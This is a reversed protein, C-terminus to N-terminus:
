CHKKQEAHGLSAAFVTAQGVGHGSWGYDNINGALDNWVVDAFHLQYDDNPAIFYVYVSSVSRNKAFARKSHVNRLGLYGRSHLSM